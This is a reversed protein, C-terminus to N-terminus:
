LQKGKNLYEFAKLDMKFLRLLKIAPLLDYTKSYAYLCATLEEYRAQKLFMQQNELQKAFLLIQLGLSSLTIILDKPEDVEDSKVINKYLSSSKKNYSKRLKEYFQSVEFPRNKNIFDIVELSVDPSSAAKRLIDKTDIGKDKIDALLILCDQRTIAM